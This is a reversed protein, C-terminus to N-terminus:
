LMRLEIITIQSVVVTKQSFGTPSVNSSQMLVTVVGQMM